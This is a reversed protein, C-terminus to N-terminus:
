KRCRKSKVNYIRAMNQIRDHILRRLEPPELVEAQDGYGLIWWSIENIGDVTVNFDMTGDDNWSTRQTTQWSVEAVNKAVLPQFRIVVLTRRGRERILSWANGLYRQVTFRPPIEFADDTTESQSFRGIHFTRVARHLSSRGIVYWAHRQFLMRYPSLLTKIVQREHLSHYTIRVKRRKTIAQLIREYHQKAPDHDSQPETKVQISATVEGVYSQLHGPLNSQLKLAADRAAEQFPVGRQKAGLEQALIMLSLTEALTFDTPPLYPGTALWYGQKQSDYLIPIGSDQLTKLDRFTTRRSVGCFEALQKANFARGSQLRELLHLLRRIRNISSM